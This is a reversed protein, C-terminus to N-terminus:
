QVVGLVDVEKVIHLDELGFTIKTASYQNFYIQDGVSVDLPRKHGKKSRAGTGAALVEGKLHGEVTSVTEPIILGGATVREASILRVVLRDGLPTMVQSYDITKNPQQKTAPKASSPKAAVSTLVSKKVPAKKTAKAVLKTKVAKSKAPKAKASKTQVKKLAKKPAPKKAKAPQVKQAPRNKAASKKSKAM